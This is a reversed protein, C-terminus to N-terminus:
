ALLKGEKGLSRLTGQIAVRFFLLGGKAEFLGSVGRRPCDADATRRALTSNAETALCLLTCMGWDGSM